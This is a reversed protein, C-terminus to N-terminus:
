SQRQEYLDYLAFLTERANGQHRALAQSVDAPTIWMCDPTVLGQVISQACDLSVHTRFLDPLGMPRHCTVLLGCGLRRCRRRLLWRGPGSLQEFGDVIVLTDPGWGARYARRSLRRAGARLTTWTIQRGRQRLQPELTKLLTTKGTGHPGVIQGRWEQNALRDVLENAAADPPFVYQIAGPQTHRVDFPNNRM